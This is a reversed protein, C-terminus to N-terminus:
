SEYCWWFIDRISVPYQHIIICEISFTAFWKWNILSFFIYKLQSLFSNWQFPWYSKTPQESKSDLLSSDSCEKVDWRRSCKVTPHTPAVTFQRSFYSTTFYVSVPIFRIFGVSTDITNNRQPLNYLITPMWEISFALVNRQSSLCKKKQCTHSIGTLPNWRMKASVRDGGREINHTFTAKM